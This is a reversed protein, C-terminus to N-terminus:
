DNGHDGKAPERPFTKALDHMSPWGGPPVDRTVKSQASQNATRKLHENLKKDGQRAADEYKNAM